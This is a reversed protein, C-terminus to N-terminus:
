KNNKKTQLIKMVFKKREFSFLTFDCKNRFLTIMLKSPLIGCIKTNEKVEHTTELDIYLDSEM